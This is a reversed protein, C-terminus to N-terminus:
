SAVKWDERMVRELPIAIINGNELRVMHCRDIYYTNLNKIRKTQDGYPETADLYYLWPEFGDEFVLRFKDDHDNRTGSKFGWATKAAWHPEQVIYAHNGSEYEVRLHQWATFLIRKDADPHSCWAYNSQQTFGLHKVFTSKNM